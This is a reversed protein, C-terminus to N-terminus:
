ETETSSKDIKEGGGSVTKIVTAIYTQINSLTLGKVKNKEAYDQSNKLRVTEM